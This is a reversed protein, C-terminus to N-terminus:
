KCDKESEKDEDGDIVKDIGESVILDVARDAAFKTGANQIPTTIGPTLCGIAMGALVGFFHNIVNDKEKLTEKYDRLMDMLDYPDIYGTGLDGEYQKKQNHWHRWGGPPPRLGEVLGELDDM